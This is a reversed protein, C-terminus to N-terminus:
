ICARQSTQPRRGHRLTHRRTTTATASGCPSGTDRGVTPCILLKSSFVSSVAPARILPSFPLSLPVVRCVLASCIRLRQVRTCLSGDFLTENSLLNMSDNRAFCSVVVTLWRAAECVLRWGGAHCCDEVALWPCYRTPCVATFTATASTQCM